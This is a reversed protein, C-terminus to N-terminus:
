FCLQQLSHGHMIKFVLMKRHAIGHGQAMQAGRGCQVFSKNLQSAYAQHIDLVPDVITSGFVQDWCGQGVRM